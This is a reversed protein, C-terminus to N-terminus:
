RTEASQTAHLERLSTLITEHLSAPAPGECSRRVAVTLREFVEQESQCEPCAAVHDAIVRSDGDCLEGRILEELNARAKECGCDSM